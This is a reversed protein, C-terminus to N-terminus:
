QSSPIALSSIVAEYLIFYLTCNVLTVKHCKRRGRQQVMGDRAVFDMSFELSTMKFSVVYIAHSLGCMSTVLRM